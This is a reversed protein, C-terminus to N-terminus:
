CSLLYHIRGKVQNCPCPNPEGSSFAKDESVRWQSHIGTPEKANVAAEVEEKTMGERACASCYVLGLGYVRVPEEDWGKLSKVREVVDEQSM